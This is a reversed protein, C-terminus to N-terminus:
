ISALYKEAKNSEKYTKKKQLFKVPIKRYYKYLGRRLFLILITLIANNPYDNFRYTM